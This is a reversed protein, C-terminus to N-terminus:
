KNQTAAVQRLEAEEAPIGDQHFGADADGDYRGNADDDGFEDGFM